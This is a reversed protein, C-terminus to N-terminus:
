HTHFSITPKIQMEWTLLSNTSGKMHKNSMQIYEKYFFFFDIGIKQVKLFQLKTKKNNYSKKLM